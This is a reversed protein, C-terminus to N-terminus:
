THQVRPLQTIVVDMEVRAWWHLNGSFFRGPLFRKASVVLLFCVKVAYFLFLPANKILEHLNEFLQLASIDGASLVM